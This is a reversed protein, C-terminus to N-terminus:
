IHILSLMMAASGMMGGGSMMGGEPMTGNGGMMAHGKMAGQGGMMAHGGMGGGGAMMGQCIQMVGEGMGEVKHGAAGMPMQQGVAPMATFALLALATTMRKMTM